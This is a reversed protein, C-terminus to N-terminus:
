DLPSPISRTRPIADMRSSPTSNTVKNLDSPHKDLLAIWFLRTSTWM